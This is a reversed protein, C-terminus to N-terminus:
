LVARRVFFVGAGVVLISLAILGWTSLAPISTNGSTLSIIDPDLIESGGVSGSSADDSLILDCEANQATCHLNVSALGNVFNVTTTTAAGDFTFGSGSLNLFATGNVSTNITGSPIDTIALSCVATEGNSFPNTEEPNGFPFHGPVNMAFDHSTITFTHSNSFHQATHNVTDTFTIGVTVTTTGPNNKMFHFKHIICNGVTVTTANVFVIPGNVSFGPADDTLTENHPCNAPYCVKIAVYLELNNQYWTGWAPVPPCQASSNFSIASIFIMLWAAFYNKILTKM